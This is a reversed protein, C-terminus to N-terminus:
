VSMGGAFIKYPGITVDSPYPEKQLFAHEEDGIIDITANANPQHNGRWFVRCILRPRLPGYQLLVTSLPTNVPLFKGEVIPDGDPLGKDNLLVVQVLSNKSVKQVMGYRIWTQEHNPTDLANGMNSFQQDSLSTPAGPKM